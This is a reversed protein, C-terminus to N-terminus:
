QIFKGIVIVLISLMLIIFLETPIFKSYKEELEVIEKRNKINNINKGIIIESKSKYDDIDDTYISKGKTSDFGAYKKSPVLTSYLRELSGTFIFVGIMLGFVITAIPYLIYTMGYLQRIMPVLVLLTCIAISPIAGLAFGIKYTILNKDKIIRDYREPANLIKTKILEYIDNMKQDESSLNVTINMKYEYIDMSISQSILKQDIGDQIWYSYHYRINMNKVEPLRSDFLSIFADYNDVTINTDDYFNFACKFTGEFKKVTWHQYAREFKENQITEQKCIEINEKMEENMKQFIELLDTDSIIKNAVKITDNYM